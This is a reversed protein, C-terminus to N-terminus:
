LKYNQSKFILSSIDSGCVNVVLKNLLSDDIIEVFFFSM